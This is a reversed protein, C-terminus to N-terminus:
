QISNRDHCSNMVSHHIVPARGCAQRYHRGRRTQRLVLLGGPVVTDGSISALRWPLFAALNLSRGYHDPSSLLLLAISIEKLIDAAAEMAVVCDGRDAATWYHRPRPLLIVTKVPGLPDSLWSSNVEHMGPTNVEYM